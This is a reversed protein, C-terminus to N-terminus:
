LDYFFINSTLYQEDHIFSIIKNPEEHLVNNLFKYVEPRFIKNIYAQFMLFINNQLHIESMYKIIDKKLLIKIKCQGSHPGWGEGHWSKKM